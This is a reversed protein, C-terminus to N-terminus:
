IPATVSKAVKANFWDYYDYKEEERIVLIELKNKVRAWNMLIRGLRGNGDVFPHINEFRVHSAKIEKWKKDLNAFMVWEKMLDPVKEWSAGYRRGIRVGVRRFYGRQFGAIPQNLMLIKHTKLVNSITLKDEQIIYEWALVAQDLSNGDM